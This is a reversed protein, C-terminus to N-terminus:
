DPLEPYHKFQVRQRTPCPVFVSCSPPDQIADLVASKGNGYSTKMANNPIGDIPITIENTKSKVPAVCVQRILLFIIFFFLM